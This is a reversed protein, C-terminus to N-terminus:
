KANCMCSNAEIGRGILYFLQVKNVIVRLTFKVLNPRINYQRIQRFVNSLHKDPKDKISFKVIMDVM